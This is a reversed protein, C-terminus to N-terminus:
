VFEEKTLEGSFHDEVKKVLEHIQELLAYSPWSNFKSPDGGKMQERLKKWDALPLTIEITIPIENPNAAKSTIAIM